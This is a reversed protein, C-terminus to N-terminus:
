QLGLIGYISILELPIQTGALAEESLMQSRLREPGETIRIASLIREILSRHLLEFPEAEAAREVGLNTRVGRPHISEGQTAKVTLFGCRFLRLV